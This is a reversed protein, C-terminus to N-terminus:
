TTYKFLSFAVFRKRQVVKTLNGETYISTNAHTPQLYYVKM